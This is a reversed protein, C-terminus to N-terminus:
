DGVELEALSVQLKKHNPNIELGRNYAFRAKDIEGIALYAHGQYLYTEEVFRGGGNSLLAETWCSFTRTVATEWILRM